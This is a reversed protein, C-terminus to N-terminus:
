VSYQTQQGHFSPGFLFFFVPETVPQAQRVWAVWTLHQLHGTGARYGPVIHPWGALKGRPLSLLLVCVRASLVCVGAPSRRESSCVGGRCLPKGVRQDGGSGWWWHWSHPALRDQPGPSYAASQGTPFSLLPSSVQSTQCCGCSPFTCTCIVLKWKSPCVPLVGPSASLADSCRMSEAQAMAPRRGQLPSRFWLKRSLVGLFHQPVFVAEEVWSNGQNTDVAVNGM